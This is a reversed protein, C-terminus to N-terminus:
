HRYAMAHGPHGSMNYQGALNGFDDIGWFITGTAGPYDLTQYDYGVEAAAPAAAAGATLALAALLLRSPFQSHSMSRTRTPEPLSPRSPAAVGAGTGDDQVACFRGRSRCRGRSKGIRMAAPQSDSGSM